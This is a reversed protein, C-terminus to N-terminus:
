VGVPSLGLAAYLYPLGGHSTIADRIVNYNEDYESITGFNFPAAASDVNFATFVHLQGSQGAKLGFTRNEVTTVDLKHYSLDISGKSYSWDPGGRGYWAAEDFMKISPVNIVPLGLIDARTITDGDLSGDGKSQGFLKAVESSVGFSSLTSGGPGVRMRKHLGTISDPAETSNMLLTISFPSTSGKTDQIQRLLYGVAANDVYGSDALRVVGLQAANDLTKSEPPLSPIPGLVGNSIGVAPALNRLIDSVPTLLDDLTDQIFGAPIQPSAIAGLGAAVGAAASSITAADILSLANSLQSPIPRSIVKRRGLRLNSYTSQLPGATFLASAAPELPLKDPAASILSIPTFNLQSPVGPTTPRSAVSGYETTSSSAKGLVVKSTQMVGGILLDVDNAWPNRVSALTIDKLEADLGLPKYVYQDVFGRWSLGSQGLTNNATASLFRVTDILSSTQFDIGVTKLVKSLANVGKEVNEVLLKATAPLRPTGDANFLGSFLQRLQGNYGSSNYGDRGARSEFQNRFSQSFGLMSSFWSGGSSSAMGKVNGLLQDLDNDKGSAALGDMGGALWGAHASHANFGGGSLALYRDNAPSDAM